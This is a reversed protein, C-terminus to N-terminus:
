PKPSEVPILTKILLNINAEIALLRVNLPHTSDELAQELALKTQAQLNAVAVRDLTTKLAGGASQNVIPTQDGWIKIVDANTLADRSTIDSVAKTVMAQIKAFDAAIMKDDEGTLVDQVRPIIISSIQKIRATGPCEKGKSVSWRRGGSVLYGPHSNLGDGHECGQRHYAIGRRDPKTDQIVIPPISYKKCLWAVLKVIADLQKPTWAAINSASQPANDATEISIVEPNGELNADASFDLDQWQFVKGDYGNAVDGGWKGGIGFHSETGTFGNQKFMADTSTLYGVMTHLCIINHSTMRPEAQTGLPRWEADPYKVAM